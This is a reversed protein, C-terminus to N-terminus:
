EPPTCPTPYWTAPTPPLPEIGPTSFPTPDSAHGPGTSGNPMYDITPYAGPSPACTPPATHPYGIPLALQSDTVDADNPLIPSASGPADRPTTREAAAAIAADQAAAAFTRLYSLFPVIGMGVAALVAVDYSAIRHLSPGFPGSM